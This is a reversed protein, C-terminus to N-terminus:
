RQARFLGSNGRRARTRTRHPIPWQSPEWVLCEAVDGQLPLHPAPSVARFAATASTAEQLRNDEVSRGPTAQGKTARGVSGAAIALLFRMAIQSITPPKDGSAENALQRRGPAPCHEPHCYRKSTRHREGESIRSVAWRWLSLCRAPWRGPHVEDDRQWCSNTRADARDLVGHPV